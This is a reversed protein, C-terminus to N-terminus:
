RLPIKWGLFTLLIATFVLMKIDINYQLHGVSSKIM